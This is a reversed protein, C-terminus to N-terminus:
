LDTTVKPILDGNAMGDVALNQGTVWSAAPSCLYLVADAIDTPLGNRRMATNAHMAERVSPDMSSLYMRLSDTEVAGPLVGNVRIRPALEVAMLRTLQELAAKTLSHTLSTRVANRGAVSGINCVVGGGRELMHPVALRVLEFPASVNFHFSKELQAVTTDLFPRSMSGGANNVVIDIGGFESVTRDVISALADLDNVDAAIPLARGGADTVAAAVAELDSGTRATLVCDAGADAFARAIAAGIGKGAGTIIAVKGDLRFQPQSTSQM